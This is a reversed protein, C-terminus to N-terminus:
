RGDTYILYVLVGIDLREKCNLSENSWRRSYPLSAGEGPLTRLCTSCCARSVQSCGATGEVGSCRKVTANASISSDAIATFCDSKNITCTTPQRGDSGTWPIPMRVTARP